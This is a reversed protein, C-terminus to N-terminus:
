YEEVGLCKRSALCIGTGKKISLFILCAWSIVRLLSVNGTRSRSTVVYLVWFNLALYSYFIRVARFSLYFNVVELKLAHLVRRYMRGLEMMDCDVACQVIFCM